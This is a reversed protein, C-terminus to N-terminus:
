GPTNQFQSASCRRNQAKSTARTPHPIPPPPTGMWSSLLAIVIPVIIIFVTVLAPPPSENPGNRKWGRPWFEMAVKKHIAIAIRLLKTKGSIERTQQFSCCYVAQETDKCPPVNVNALHSFSFYIWVHVHKAFLTSFDRPRAGAHSGGVEMSAKAGDSVPTHSPYLKVPKMLLKQHIPCSRTSSYLLQVLGHQSLSSQKQRPKGQWNRWM